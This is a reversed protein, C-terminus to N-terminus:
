IKEKMSGCNDNSKEKQTRNQCPSDTTKNIAHEFLMLDENHQYTSLENGTTHGTETIASSRLARMKINVEGKSVYNKM